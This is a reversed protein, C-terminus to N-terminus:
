VIGTYMMISGSCGKLRSHRNDITQLNNCEVGVLNSCVRCM